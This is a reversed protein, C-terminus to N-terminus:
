LYLFRDAYWDIIAAGFLYSTFLGLILFPGFPIKISARKRSKLIAPLAVSLGFVSAFFLSMWVLFPDGLYFAIAAGLRYDGDGIWRGKSVRYLLWFLGSGVLLAAATLLSSAIFEQDDYVYFAVIRHVLAISVLPYVIKSPLLFWKLDSVVLAAMLVLGLLWLAFLVLFGGQLEYPAFVYSATFAFALGVEVLPYFVSLKKSCYRCKGNFVTWSVIPILDLVKLKHGCHDCASRGKVWDKNEHLRDALVLAFSGFSAGVVFLYVSIFIDM